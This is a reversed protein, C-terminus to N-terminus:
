AKGPADVAADLGRIAAVRGQALLGLSELKELGAVTELSNVDIYNSLEIQKAFLKLPMKAAAPVGVADDPFFLLTQEAPTLRQILELKSLINQRPEPAPEFVGTTADYLGIDNFDSSKPVEIVQAWTFDLVEDAFAPLAQLEPLSTVTESIDLYREISHKGNTATKSIIAYKM